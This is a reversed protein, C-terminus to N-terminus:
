VSDARRWWDSLFEAARLYQDAGVPDVRAADLCSVVYKVLHADEHAAAHDIVAQLAAGDVPELETLLGDAGVRGFRGTLEILPATGHGSRNSVVHTAALAAMTAPDGSFRAATLIGQPITLCHSWGYPAENPDDLMMSASAIRLISRTALALDTSPGVTPGVVDQALGTDTVATVLPHIFTSEPRGQVPTTALAATLDGSGDLGNETWDIRWDPHRAVERALTGFMAGTLASAPAARPLHHLFIPGHAAAALSPALADTVLASLREADLNRGLYEGAAAASDLDGAALAGVVADTADGITVFTAESPEAPLGFAEFGAAIGVIRLRAAERTEPSVRPLLAARALLELPAHLVFSNPLDARPISLVAAVADVLAADALRDLRRERYGLPIDTPDLDHVDATARPTTISM